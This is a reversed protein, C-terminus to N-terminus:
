WKWKIRLNKIVAISIVNNCVHFYEYLWHGNGACDESVTDHKSVFTSYKNQFCKGKEM